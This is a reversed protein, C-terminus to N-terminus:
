DNFDFSRKFNPVDYKKIKNKGKILPLIIFATSIENNIM